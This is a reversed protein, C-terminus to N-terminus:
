RCMKYFDVFAEMGNNVLAFLAALPYVSMFLSVYGFQLWMEMFDDHLSELPDAILDHRVIAVRPDDEGLVQMM